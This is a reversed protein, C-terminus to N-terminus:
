DDQEDLGAMSDIAQRLTRSLLGLGRGRYGQWRPDDSGTTNHILLPGNERVEAELYDLRHKDTWGGSALAPEEPSPKAQPKRLDIIPWDTSKSKSNKM